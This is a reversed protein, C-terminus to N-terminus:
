CFNKLYEALTPPYLAHEEKLVRAALTAPTDEPLVPVKKQALIKGHDLEEDVLHVTCGSEKQGAKIVAEHVYHGYMGPGGFRPLLAPHINIIRNRYLAIINPELKLLFGALCVLDVGAKKLEQGLAAFYETRSPYTKPDMFRAEVRAKNARELGGADKKNSLVLGVKANPLVPTGAADLIAQLNSGGGSILVGLNFIKM